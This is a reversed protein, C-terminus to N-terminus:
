LVSPFQGSAPVVQLAGLRRSQYKHFLSGTEKAEEKAAIGRVLPLKVCCRFAVAVSCGRRLRRALALALQLVLLAAVGAALLLTPAVGDLARDAAAAAAAGHAVLQATAGCLMDGVSSPRAGECQEAALALFDLAMQQQKLLQQTLFPMLTSAM